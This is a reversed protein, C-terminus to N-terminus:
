EFVNDSSGVESPVEVKFNPIIEYVYNEKEIIISKSSKGLVITKGGQPTYTITYDAFTLNYNELYKSFKSEFGEKFHDKSAQSASLEASLQIYYLIGEGEQYTQFLEIEKEGFYSVDSGPQFNANRYFVVIAVIFALGCIGLFVYAKKNM